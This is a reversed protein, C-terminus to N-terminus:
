TLAHEKGALDLPLAARKHDNGIPVCRCRGIQIPHTRVGESLHRRPSAESPGAQSVEAAARAPDRGAVKKKSFARNIQNAQLSQFEM